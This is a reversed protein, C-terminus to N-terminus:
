KEKFGKDCLCIYETLTYLNANSNITKIGKKLGVNDLQCTTIITKNDIEDKKYFVKQFLEEAFEPHKLLLFNEMTSCSGKRNIIPFNISLNEKKSLPKHYFINDEKQIEYNNLSLLEDLTIAAVKLNVTSYGNGDQPCKYTPNYSTYKTLTAKTEEKM